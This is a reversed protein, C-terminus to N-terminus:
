GSKTQLAIYIRMGQKGLSKKRVGVPGIEGTNRVHTGGCPMEPYTGVKWYRFNPDSPKTWTKIELNRSIVENLRNGVKEVDFPDFYQIDVRAENDAVHSGIVKPKGYIDVFAYYVLHAATHLKMINYRRDWDIKCEVEQGISFSPPEALIHHIKGDVLKTDIVRNSDIFGTDGVQGGSEPYFCSEELVVYKDGIEKVSTKFQKLYPDQWFLRNTM